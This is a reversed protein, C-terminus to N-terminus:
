TPTFAGPLSVWLIKSGKNLDGTMKRNDASLGAFGIDVAVNPFADGVKTTTGWKHSMEAVTLTGYRECRHPCQFLIRDILAYAKGKAEASRGL